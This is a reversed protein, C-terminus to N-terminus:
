DPLRISVVAVNNEYTSEAIQRHQNLEVRLLYEGASLATVQPLV